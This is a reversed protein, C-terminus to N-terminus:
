LLVPDTHEDSQHDPSPKTTGAGGKTQGTSELGQRKITPIHQEPSPVGAINRRESDEHQGRKRMPAHPFNHARLQNM